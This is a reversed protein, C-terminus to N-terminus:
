EDRQGEPHQIKWMWQRGTVFIEIAGPPTQANIFYLSSGWFFLALVILAPIGTWVIELPVSGEIPQPREDPSRRRYKVMFYFITLFIAITFFLTIAALLRPRRTPTFPSTPSCETIGAKKASHNALRRVNRDAELQAPRVPTNRRRM